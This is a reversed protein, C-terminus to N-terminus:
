SRQNRESLIKALVTGTYHLEHSRLVFAMAIYAASGILVSVLVIDLRGATHVLPHMFTTVGVVCAAMAMSAICSRLFSRVPLHAWNDAGSRHVAILLACAILISALSSAVALGAYGILRGLVVAMLLYGVLGGASVSAVWGAARVAYLFRTTVAAVATPVLGIALIAASSSTRAVGQADFAGHHYVLQVLPEALLVLGVSIPLLLFAVMGISKGLAATRGPENRLNLDVFRPYSATAISQAILLPATIVVRGYNLSSIVGAGLGFGVVREIPMPTQSAVGAILLAFSTGGLREAFGRADAARLRLVPPGLLRIAAITMLLAPALAGLVISLALGTIGFGIRLLAALAILTTLSGLPIRLAAASYRGAAILVTGGLASVGTLLILPTMTLGLVLLPMGASGVGVAIAASWACAYAVTIAILALTSLLLVAWRAHAAGAETHDMFEPLLLSYAFEGFLISLLSPGAIAVLYIDLDKSAGFATSM